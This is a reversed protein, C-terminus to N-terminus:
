AALETVSALGPQGLPELAIETRAPDGYVKAARIRVIRSDDRFANTKPTEPNM